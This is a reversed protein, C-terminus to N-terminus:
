SGFEIHERETRVEDLEERGTFEIALFSKRM